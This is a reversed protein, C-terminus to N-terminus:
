DRPATGARRLRYIVTQTGVGREALAALLEHHVHNRLEALLLADAVALTLGRATLSVPEVRAALTEGLIEVLALRVQRMRQQRRYEASSTWADVLGGIPKPTRWGLRVRSALRRDREPDSQHEDV